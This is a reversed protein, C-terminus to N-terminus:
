KAFLGGDSPITVSIGAERLSASLNATDGGEPWFPIGPNVDGYERAFHDAKFVFDSTWIRTILLNCFKWAIIIFSILCLRAEQSSEDLGARSFVTVV